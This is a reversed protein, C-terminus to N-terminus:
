DRKLAGEDPKPKDGSARPVRGGGSDNPLTRRNIGAPAPFELCLIVIKR